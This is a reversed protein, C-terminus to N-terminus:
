GPSMVVIGASKAVSPPSTPVNLQTAGVSVNMLNSGNETYGARYGVAVNYTETDTSAENMLAQYGIAVANRGSVSMIVFLVSITKLTIFPRIALIM